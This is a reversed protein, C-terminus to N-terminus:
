GACHPLWVTGQFVFSGVGHLCALSCPVTLDWQKCGGFRRENGGLLHPGRLPIAPSIARENRKLRCFVYTSVAPPRLRNHCFQFLDCDQIPWNFTSPFLGNLYLWCSSSCVRTSNTNTPPPLTAGQSRTKGSFPTVILRQQHELIGRTRSVGGKQSAELRSLISWVLPLFFFNKKPSVQAPPSFFFSFGLCM